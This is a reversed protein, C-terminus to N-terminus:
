CAIEFAVALGASVAVKVGAQAGDILADSIVEKVDDASSIGDEAAKAMVDSAIERFACQGVDKAMSKLTDKMKYDNWNDDQWESADETEIVEIEDVSDYEAQAQSIGNLFEAAKRAKEGNGGEEKMIDSIFWQEASQGAAKAASMEAQKKEMLDLTELIEGSIAHIADVSKGPLKRGLYDQLWDSLRQNSANATFDCIADKLIVSLQM